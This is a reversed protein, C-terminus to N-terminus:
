AKRRRRLAAIGALGGLMMWGAAPLPVASPNPPPPPDVIDTQAVSYVINDLGVNWDTGWQLYLTGTTTVDPTFSNFNGGVTTEGTTWLVNWIDDFISFTSRRPKGGFYSGVDFSKLTVEYGEAAAFAIQAVFGQASAFAVNM